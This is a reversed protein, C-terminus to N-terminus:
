SQVGEGALFALLDRRLYRVAAGIKLWRPGTRLTRWNDLTARKLNLVAAAEETTLLEGPRLDSLDIPATTSPPPALIASM